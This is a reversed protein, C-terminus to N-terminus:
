EHHGDCSSLRRYTQGDGHGQHAVPLGEHDVEEVAHLALLGGLLSAVAELVCQAARYKTRVRVRLAAVRAGQTRTESASMASQRRPTM